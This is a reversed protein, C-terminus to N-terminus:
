GARSQTFVKHQYGPHGSTEHEHLSVMGVAITEAADKGAGVDPFANRRFDGGIARRVFSRRCSSTLLFAPRAVPTEFLHRLHGTPEVVVSVYEHLSSGWQPDSMAPWHDKDFGSANRIGETTINLRFCKEDADLTLASWPMAYLTHGM